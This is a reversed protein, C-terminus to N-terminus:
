AISMKSMAMTNSCFHTASAPLIEQLETIQKNTVVKPRGGPGHLALGDELLRDYNTTIFCTPGLLAILKHIDHPKAIGHRCATRIFKALDRKQLLHVGYSAALLLDGDQLAQRVSRAPLGQKEVFDALEIILKPWTPLGSWVSVGSGVLVVTDPKRLTAKLREILALQQQEHVTKM